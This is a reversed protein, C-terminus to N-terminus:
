PMGNTSAARKVVCDCRFRTRIATCQIRCNRPLSLTADDHDPGIYRFQAKSREADALPFGAQQAVASGDRKGGLRHLDQVEQRESIRAQATSCFKEM